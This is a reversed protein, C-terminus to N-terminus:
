AGHILRIRGEASVVWKSSKWEVLGLSELYTAIQGDVVHHFAVDRLTDLEDRTLPPGKREPQHTVPGRWAYPLDRRAANHVM